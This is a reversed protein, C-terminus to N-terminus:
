LTALHGALTEAHANQPPLGWSHPMCSLPLAERGCCHSSTGISMWIGLICSDRQQCWPWAPSGPSSCLLRSCGWGLTWPTLYPGSSNLPLRNLMRSTYVSQTSSHCCLWLFIFLFSLMNCILPIKKPKFCSQPQNNLLHQMRDYIVHPQTM